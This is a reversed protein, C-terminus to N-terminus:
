PDKNPIQPIIFPYLSILSYLMQDIGIGANGVWRRDLKKVTQTNAISGKVDTSDKALM